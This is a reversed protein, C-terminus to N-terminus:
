WVVTVLGSAIISADQTLLPTRIRQALGAIIRDHMEPISADRDFDLVDESGFNVLQVYSESKLNQYIQKFDDFLHHKKNAFYMEAIVIASFILRTEHRKAFEFIHQGTKSLRIDSKLYWILAHTDVVYLPELRTRSTM